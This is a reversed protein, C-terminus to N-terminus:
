ITKLAVHVYDILKTRLNLVDPFNLFDRSQVVFIFYPNMLLINNQLCIIYNYKMLPLVKLPSFWTGHKAPLM